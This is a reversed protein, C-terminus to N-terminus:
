KVFDKLSIKYIITGPIPIPDSAPGALFSESLEYEAEAVQSPSLALYFSNAGKKGFSPTSVDALKKGDQKVVTRNVFYKAQTLTRVLTFHLMGDDGKEVKLSWERSHAKLYEPTVQQEVTLATGPRAAIILFLVLASFALSRSM